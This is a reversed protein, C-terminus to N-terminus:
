WFLRQFLRYRWNGTWLIMDFRLNQPPNKGTQCKAFYFQAARELRAKQHPSPLAAELHDYSGERSASQRFKVEILLLSEGRRMVLDIEGYPSKYRRDLLRWGTLRYLWLTRNEAARGQKEAKQRKHSRTM